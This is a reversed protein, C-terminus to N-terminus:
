QLYNLIEQARGEYYADDGSENIHVQRVTFGNEELRTRVEGLLSDPDNVPRCPVVILDYRICIRIFYEISRNAEELSQSWVRGKKGNLEFQSQRLTLGLLPKLHSNITRTKGVYHRGVVVVAKKM